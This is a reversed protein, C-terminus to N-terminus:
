NVLYWVKLNTKLQTDTSTLIEYALQPVYDGGYSEGQILILVLDMPYWVICYLVIWYLVICYLVFWNLAMGTIYLPNNAFQPYKQYFGQLFRLTNAATNNNNANYAAM